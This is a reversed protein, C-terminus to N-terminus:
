HLSKCQISELRLIVVKSTFSIYNIGTKKRELEEEIKMRLWPFATRLSKM